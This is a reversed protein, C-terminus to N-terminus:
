DESELETHGLIDVRSRLGEYVEFKFLSSLTRLIVAYFIQFLTKRRGLGWCGVALSMELCGLFGEASRRFAYVCKVQLENGPNSYLIRCMLFTLGFRHVVISVISVIPVYVRFGVGCDESM